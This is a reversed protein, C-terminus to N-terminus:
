NLLSPKQGSGGTAWRSCTETATVEGGHGNSEDGQTSHLSGKHANPVYHADNM